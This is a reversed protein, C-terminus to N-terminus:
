ELGKPAGAGWPELDGLSCARVGTRFAASARSTPVLLRRLAEFLLFTVFGFGELPPLTATEHSLPLLM